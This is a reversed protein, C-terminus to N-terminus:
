TSSSKFHFVVYFLLFQIGWCGSTSRGWIKFKPKFSSALGETGIKKKSVKTGIAECSDEILIVNYKKCIKKISNTDNPHGLVNVLIAVSPNNKKCLETIKIILSDTLCGYNFDSFILLNCKSLIKKIKSLIKKEM